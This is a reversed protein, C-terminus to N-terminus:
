SGSSGEREERKIERLAKAAASGTRSGRFREALRALEVTMRDRRGQSRYLEILLNSALLEIPRSPSSGRVEQYVREAAGADGLHDRYLEALKLWAIWDRPHDRLYVRYAEAAEAYFGRAALSEMGSHSPAAPLNGGALVLNVLGQGTRGALDTIVVAALWLVGLDLALLGVWGVVSGPNFFEGEAFVLISGAGFVLWVWAKLFQLRDASDSSRPM